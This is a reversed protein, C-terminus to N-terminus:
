YREMGQPRSSFDLSTGCDRCYLLNELNQVGCRPCYISAVQSDNVAVLKNTTAETASPLAEVQSIDSPLSEDSVSTNLPRKRLELSRHYALFSIGSGYVYFIGILFILIKYFINFFSDGLSIFVSSFLLIPGALGFLIADRHLRENKKEFLADLKSVLAIPLHKKMAQSIIKLDEGCERCYALDEQNEAGCKPCYM